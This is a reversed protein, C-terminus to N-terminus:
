DYSWFTKFYIYDLQSHIAFTTHQWNYLDTSSLAIYHMLNLLLLWVVHVVLPAPVAVRGSCMLESGTKTPNTNNSRWKETYHKTSWQKDKQGTKLHSNHQRDKKWKRSRNVKQYRWVKRTHTKNVYNTSM